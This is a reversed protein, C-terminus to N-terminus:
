AVIQHKITAPSKGFRERFSRSFHSASEFGSEFASEAVTKGANALLHLAYDLRKELIWKGPTANFTKVFDRKFASLSRASLKAFEELKLNFCFNEEMVKQLSVARPGRLLSHFYSLLESNVPDDAVLLILEKFKLELLSQDSKGGADFYPVLSQFYSQVASSNEIAMVPEYDKGAKQIPTSKTKLVECIFEDPIFFMFMCVETEFFQEVINAGKRVLM